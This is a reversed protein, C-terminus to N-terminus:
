YLSFIAFSPNTRLNLDVLQNGSLSPFGFETKM